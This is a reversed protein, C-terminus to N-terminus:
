GDLNGMLGYHFDCEDLSGCDAGDCAYSETWSSEFADPSLWTGNGSADWIFTAKYGEVPDEQHFVCNFSGKDLVCTFLGTYLKFTTADESVTLDTETVSTVYADDVVKLPRDDVVWQSCEKAVSVNDYDLLYNGELPVITCGLLLLIM